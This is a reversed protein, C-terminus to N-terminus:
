DEAAKRAQRILASPNLKLADTIRLLTDLGPVRRGQEVYGVMQYSLGARAAVAALSLKQRLREARLREAVKSCVAQYAADKPM